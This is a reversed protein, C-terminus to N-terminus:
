KFQSRVDPTPTANESEMMKTIVYALGEGMAERVFCMALSTAELPASSNACVRAITHQAEGCAHWALDFVENAQTRTMGAIQVMQAVHRARLREVTEKDAAM